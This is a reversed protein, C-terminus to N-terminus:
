SSSEGALSPDLARSGPRHRVLGAFLARGVAGPPDDQNIHTVTIRDDFSGSALQNGLVVAHVDGPFAALEVLAQDVDSDLLFFDSLVVLTAEHQGHRQALTVARRLSPLLESSGAGDRPIQLGQKLKSLNWRRLPVPAVDSSCPTDFHLVAGLERRSGRRAVATFAAAMESYRNSLPDSGGPTTVSGSDDTVAILLTPVSAPEGPDGLVIETGTQIPGAASNSPMDGLLQGPLLWGPQLLPQTNM